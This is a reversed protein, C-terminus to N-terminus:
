CPTRSIFKGSFINHPKCSSTSLTPTCLTPSSVYGRPIRPPQFPPLFNNEMLDVKKIPLELYFPSELESLPVAKPVLGSAVDMESSDDEDLISYLTEMTDSCESNTEFCEDCDKLNGPPPLFYDNPRLRKHGTLGNPLRGAPPNFQMLQAGNFVDEQPQQLKQEQRKKAKEEEEYLGHHRLILRKHQYFVLSIRTPMTRCPKAIPTTAHLEKKACEILISGHGLAIAVGGPIAHVRDSKMPKKEEVVVPEMKPITQPNQPRSPTLPPALLSEGFLEPPLASMKHIPPSITSSTSQQLQHPTSNSSNLSSSPTRQLFPPPTTMQQVETKIHMGNVRLPQQPTSNNNKAATTTFISSNHHTAGGPLMPSPQSPTPSDTLICCDSDSDTNSSSSQSGIDHLISPNLAFGNLTRFGNSNSNHLFTKSLFKQAEPVHAGSQQGPIGHAGPQQGTIASPVGHAGSQQGTVPSSVVSSSDVSSTTPNSTTNSVSSASAPVSSTRKLGGSAIESPSSNRREAISSLENPGARVSPEQKPAANSSHAMINHSPYLLPTITTQAAPEKIPLSSPTILNRSLSSPFLLPGPGHPLNLLGASHLGNWRQTFGNPFKQTENLSPSWNSRSNLLPPASQEMSPETAPDSAEVPRIEIGPTSKEPPNTLRYLPLVHLQESGDDPTDEYVGRKLITCVQLVFIFLCFNILYISSTPDHSIM